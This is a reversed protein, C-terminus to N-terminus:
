TRNCHDPTQISEKCQSNFIRKECPNRRQKNPTQNACAALLNKQPVLEITSYRDQLGIIAIRSRRAGFTLISDFEAFGSIKM